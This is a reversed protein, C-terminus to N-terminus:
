GGTTSRVFSHHLLLEYLFCDEVTTLDMTSSMCALNGAVITAAVERLLEIFGYDTSSLSADGYWFLLVDTSRIKEAVRKGTYLGATRNFTWLIICDSNEPIGLRSLGIEDHSGNIFIMLFRSKMLTRFIVTAASRIVDRSALDVGNFDDEEDQEEFMALTERDLGIEQAVKKQMARKSTWRSCDIYITTGFCLEPPPAKMCPVVQAISRLVAAAGFGGWGDFYINLNNTTNQRILTFIKERAGAVDARYYV